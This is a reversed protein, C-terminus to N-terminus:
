GHLTQLGAGLLCWQHFEEGQCRGSAQMPLKYGNRTPHCGNRISCRYAVVSSKPHTEETFRVPQYSAYNGTPLSGPSSVGGAATCTLTWLRRFHHRPLHLFAICFTSSVLAPPKWHVLSQHFLGQVLLCVYNLQTRMSCGLCLRLGLDAAHEEVDQRGSASPPFWPSTRHRWSSAPRGVCCCFCQHEGM